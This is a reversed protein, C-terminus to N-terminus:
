GPIRVLRRERVRGAAHRDATLWSGGVLKALAVRTAEYRRPTSSPWAGGEAV